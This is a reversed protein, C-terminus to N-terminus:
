TQTYVTPAPIFSVGEGEPFYITNDEKTGKNRQIM